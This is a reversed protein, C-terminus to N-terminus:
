FSGLSKGIFVSAEVSLANSSFGPISSLQKIRLLMGLAGAPPHSDALPNFVGDLMIHFGRAHAIEVFHGFDEDTGLRPDISYHDLTDYGHSVSTFIPGLLIGNCGLKQLYDLWPEPHQLRHAADDGTRDRIPAGLAGLPFIQWWITHDLLRSM